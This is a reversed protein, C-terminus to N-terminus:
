QKTRKNQTHEPMISRVEDVLKLELSEDASIWWDKRDWFKKIKKKTLKSRSAFIDLIREEVRKVFKVEDDIEFVKGGMLSGFSARHIMIWSQHGIWRVDGAQLLIGAMSAAMGLAGTTVKHGSHRLEQIFDFLAFGDIISGGPSSFVIEIDCKPSSRRWQTLLGMCQEVSLPDVEKTFRYLHNEKDSFLSEQNDKILLSLDLKARETEVKTKLIEEEFLATEAAIKRIEARRIDLDAQIEEPTRGSQNREFENDM